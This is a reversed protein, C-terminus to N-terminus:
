GVSDTTVLAIRGSNIKFPKKVWENAHGFVSTNSWRGTQRDATKESGAQFVHNWRLPGNDQSDHGDRM